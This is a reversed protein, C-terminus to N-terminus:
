RYQKKDENKKSRTFMNTIRFIRALEPGKRSPNKMHQIKKADQCAESYISIGPCKRNNFPLIKKQTTHSKSFLTIRM